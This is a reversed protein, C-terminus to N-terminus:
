RMWREPDDDPLAALMADHGPALPEALPLPLWRLPHVLGADGGDGEVVHDWADPADGHLEAHVWLTRVPTGADLIESEGLRGLVAIEHLGTEEAVERLAAAEPSEGPEIGGGPPELGCGQPCDLVLLERVGARTRTLLVGVRQRM